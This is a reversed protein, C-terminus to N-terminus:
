RTIETFVIPIFGEDWGDEEDEISCGELLTDMVGCTDADDDFCCASCRKTTNGPKVETIEFERGLLKITDGIRYDM